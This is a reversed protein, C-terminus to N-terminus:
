REKTNQLQELVYFTEETEGYVNFISLESSSALDILISLRGMLELINEITEQAITAV